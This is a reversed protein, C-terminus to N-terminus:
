IIADLVDGISKAADEDTTGRIIKELISDGKLPSFANDKVVSLAESASDAGDLAVKVSTMGDPLLHSISAGVDEHNDLLKKGESLLEGSKHGAEELSVEVVSGDPLIHDFADKTSKMINNPDPLVDKAKEKAEKAAQILREQMATRHAGAAPDYFGRFTFNGNINTQTTPLIM